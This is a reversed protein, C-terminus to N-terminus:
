NKKRLIKKQIRHYIGSFRRSEALASRLPALTCAMAARYWLLEGKAMYSETIRKHEERDRARNDRNESYGDGEYAAVPFGVHVFAAGGRYFCWLFHDYDARIRYRLDFPKGRCLDTSYFCSQHCPINRFCTFGTIGPASTITVNNKGSLTDGYLVLKGLDAGKARQEEVREAVRELVNEDAFTDGCDMFITFDGSAYLVAQNMADYIGRDKEQFFRVTGGHPAGSERRCQGPGEERRWREVSGDTSGGDKLIVEFDRCTQGLISDMTSKLKGGPNLCVVVVSFKMYPEQREQAKRDGPRGNGKRGNM